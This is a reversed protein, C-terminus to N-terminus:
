CTNTSFHLIIIWILLIAENLGNKIAQNRPYQVKESLETTLKFDEGQGLYVLYSVIKWFLWTRSDFKTEEEFINKILSNKAFVQFFFSFFSLFFFRPDCHKNGWLSGRFTSMTKLDLSKRPPSRSSTCFLLWSTRFACELDLKNETTKMHKIDGVCFNMSPFLVAFALSHPLDLNPSIKSNHIKTKPSNQLAPTRNELSSPNSKKAEACFISSM